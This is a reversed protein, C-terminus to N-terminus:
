EEFPNDAELQMLESVNQNVPNAEFERLERDKIYLGWLSKRFGNSCYPCKRKLKLWGDLCLWHYKHDCGPFFILEEGDDFDLKCIPCVDQHGTECDENKEYKKLCFKQMMQEDGAIYDVSDLEDGLFGEMVEEIEEVTLDAINHYFGELITRESIEEEEENEENQLIVLPQEVHHFNHVSFDAKRRVQSVSASACDVRDVNGGFLLHFIWLVFNQFCRECM